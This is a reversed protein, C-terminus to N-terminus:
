PPPPFDRPRTLQDKAHFFGAGVLLLLVFAIPLMVLQWTNKIGLRACFLSLPVYISLVFRQPAPTSETPTLYKELPIDQCRRCIGSSADFDDTQHCIECREPLHETKVKLKTM